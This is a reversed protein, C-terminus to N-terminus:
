GSQVRIVPPDNPAANQISASPSRAARPPDRRFTMIESIDTLMIGTKKAMNNLKAMGANQTQQIRRSAYALDSLNYGAEAFVARIIATALVVTQTKLDRYNPAIVTCRDSKRQSSACSQACAAMAATWHELNMNALDNTKKSYQGKVMGFYPVDMIIYNARPLPLTRTLDNPQILEAYDSSQPPTLDFMRIDLDWPEPRGWEARDLYVEMIQGSGAMPAAVIDGPKSWYWFCNAYIEGPIYGHGKTTLRGYRVTGFNWNDSPKIINSFPLRHGLRERILQLVRRRSNRWDDDALVVEGNLARALQRFSIRDARPILKCAHSCTLDTRDGQEAPGLLQGIRAELRRVAGRIFPQAKRGHLYAEIGDAQRLWEEAGAIDVILPLTAFVEQEINQAAEVSILEKFKPLAPLKTHQQLM